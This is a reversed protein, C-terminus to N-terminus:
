HSKRRVIRKLKQPKEKDSTKTQVGDGSQKIESHDVSAGASPSPLPAYASLVEKAAETSRMKRFLPWTQVDDLPLEEAKLMQKLLRAFQKEEDLLAHKSLQYIREKASMDEAEVELRVEGFRDQWKLAQWYNIKGIMKSRESAKTDKSVFYSLSEGISWRESSLHKFAM